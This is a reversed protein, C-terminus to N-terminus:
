SSSAFCQSGWKPRLTGDFEQRHSFPICVTKPIPTKRKPDCCAPLPLAERSHRAIRRITLFRDPPAGRVKIRPQHLQRIM